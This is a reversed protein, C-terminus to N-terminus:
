REIVKFNGIECKGPEFSGYGFMGATINPLKEELILDNNLYFQLADKIVVIRVQYEKDHSWSYTAEKLVKQSFDQQVLQVKNEGNFGIYYGRCIGQSRVHIMHSKGYLPRLSTRLDIDQNYYNGTFAACGETESLAIMKNNQLSWEGLNHSFPTVCLFEIAQKAFDIQYNGKGSIKFDDLYLQGFMRSKLTSTTSIRIGIEDPFSGDLEPVVFSIEQWQDAVIEIKGGYHYTKDFTSRVYPEVFLQEGLWQKLYLSTTMVQGSVVQPAFTPKYREDSFDDRRYFPKYFVHSKDEDFLRDLLIALSGPKRHGMEDNAHLETKFPNDTRFGHTAGSFDFDFDIMGIKKREALVEPIREGNLKYSYYALEKIFTPIDMTNWSGVVGSIIINDNIPERYKAPLNELGALVGVITGVNGANCDTDWACMTAIEITKSFDGEGYLLALVCVGANPIIHCVGTYKDYGWNEELFQRCTSYDEPHDTYFAIIEEILQNYLSDKPIVSQGAKIVELVNEASFAASICAAMFRAGYLGNRDHSVSAAKEAYEAAKEINYPFLLGWTDIFIQGGIQEAMIEGNASISGSEPAKMGRKLNLFATHETSVQDGGWWFMGIGERAFDLWANGVDEATMERDKAYDILARMFYVPGNSDDDAAFNKYEKTYSDITGYVEKITEVTWCTPEVPAGLRIGACMGLFGAYM